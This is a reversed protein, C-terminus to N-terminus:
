HSNNNKTKGSAFGTSGVNFVVGYWSGCRTWGTGVCGDAVSIVGSFFSSFTLFCLDDLRFTVSSGAGELGNDPILPGQPGLPYVLPCPETPDPDTSEPLIDPDDDFLEPDSLAGTTLVVASTFLYIM